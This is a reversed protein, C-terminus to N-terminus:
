RPGATWTTCGAGCWAGTYVLDATGDLEHPTDLLDCRYWLAPAGLAESIRRANAIHVDSIDVGIVEGRGREVVLAYGPGSACQLHIATGAGRGCIAWTRASSRTCTAGARPWSPSRRRSRTPTVCRAKTGPWVIQRMGPACMTKPPYRRRRRSRWTLSAESLVDAMTGRLRM